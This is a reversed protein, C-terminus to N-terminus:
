PPEPSGPLLNTRMTCMRHTPLIESSWVNHVFCVSSRGLLVLKGGPEVPGSGFVVFFAIARLCVPMRFSRQFVRIAGVLQRLFGM